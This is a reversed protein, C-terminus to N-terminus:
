LVPPLTTIYQYPDGTSTEDFIPTYLYFEPSFNFIEAANTGTGTSFDSPVERPTSDRLSHAVRLFKVDKAVFAGNIVLQTTRCNDYLTSPDTYPTGNNQTCTYITGGHTDDKPQAVYLGDLRGVTNKIRIDGKAIIALYSGPQFTIDGRITVNGKVFITAQKTFEGGTTITLNGDRYFQTPEGGNQSDVRSVLDAITTFDSTINKHDSKLTSYFDQTYIAQQGNYFGGDNPQDSGAAGTGVTNAFTLGTPGTPPFGALRTSASGFGSIQDLALAAFQTGSGGKGPETSRYASIKQNNGTTDGTDGTNFNSGSVVDAGYVHVYPRDYVYQQEDVCGGSTDSSFQNDPNNRPPGVLGNLQVVCYDLTYQDGAVNSPPHYPGYNYPVPSPGRGSSNNLVQEVGLYPQRKSTASYDVYIHSLESPISAHDARGRFIVDQPDEVSPNFEIDASPDLSFPKFVDYSTSSCDALVFDDAQIGAESNFDYYLKAEVKYNDIDQGPETVYWTENSTWGRPLGNPTAPNFYSGTGAGSTIALILPRNDIKAYLRNAAQSNTANNTASASIIFSSHSQVGNPRGSVNGLMSLNCSAEFCNYTHTNNEPDYGDVPGTPEYWFTYNPGNRKDWKRIIKITIKKTKLKNKYHWTKSENPSGPGGNLIAFQGNSSKNDGSEPVIVNGNGDTVRVYTRTDRYRPNGNPKSAGTDYAGWGNVTLNECRGVVGGGPDSPPPQDPHWAMDIRVNVGNTVTFADNIGLSESFIYSGITYSYTMTWHGGWKGISGSPTTIKSVRFRTAQEEEEDNPNPTDNPIEACDLIFRNGRQLNNGPGLQDWGKCTFGDNSSDKYIEDGAHEPSDGIANGTGFWRQDTRGVTDIKGPATSKVQFIRANPDYDSGAGDPAPYNHGSPLNSKLKYKINLLNNPHGAEYARVTLSAFGHTTPGTNIGWDPPKNNGNPCPYAAYARDSAIFVGMGVFILSFVALKLVFKFIYKM